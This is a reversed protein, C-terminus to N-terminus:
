RDAVVEVTAIGPEAVFVVSAVVEKELFMHVAAVVKEIHVAAVVAWDLSHDVAVATHLAAAVAVEFCNTSRNEVFDAAVVAALTRLVPALDTHYDAVVAATCAAAVVAGLHVM